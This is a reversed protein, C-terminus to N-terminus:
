RVRNAPNVEEGGGAYILSYGYTYSALFFKFSGEKASYAVCNKGEGGEGRKGTGSGNDAPYIICLQGVPFPRQTM